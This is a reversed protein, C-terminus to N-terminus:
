PQRPRSANCQATLTMDVLEFGLNRPDDSNHTILQPVRPAPGAFRVQLLAGNSVPVTGRITALEAGAFVQRPALAHGNVTILMPWHDNKKMTTVTASVCVTDTALNAIAPLVITADRHNSWLPALVPRNWGTALAKSWESQPAFTLKAPLTLTTSKAFRTAAATMQRFAFNDGKALFYGLSAVYALGVLLLVLFTGTTTPVRPQTPPTTM